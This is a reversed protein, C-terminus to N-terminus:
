LDLHRLRLKYWAVAFVLWLIAALGSKLPTFLAEQLPLYEFSFAVTSSANLQQLSNITTRIYGFPPKNQVLEWINGISDLAGPSPYFLFALANQFCGGIATISCTTTALSNRSTTSGVTFGLLPFTGNAVSFTVNNSSVIDAQNNIVGCTVFPPFPECGPAPNTDGYDAVIAASITYDAQSLTTTTSFTHAGTSSAVTFDTLLVRTLSGTNINQYYIRVGLRSPLSGDLSFSSLDTGINYGIDIDFTNSPTTTGQTPDQIVISTVPDPPAIASIMHTIADYHFPDSEFINGTNLDIVNIYLDSTTISPSASNFNINWGVVSYTNTCDPSQPPSYSSQGLATAGGVYKVGISVSTLNPYGVTTWASTKICASTYPNAFATTVDVDLGTYTAAHADSVGILGFLVLLLGVLLSYLIARAATTM